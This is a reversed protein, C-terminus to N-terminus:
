PSKRCRLLWGTSEQPCREAVERKWRSLRQYGTLSLGGVFDILGAWPTDYVVPMFEGEVRFGGEKLETELEERSYEIKHDPDSYHFLGAAQLRRKWSTERNPAALFVSGSDSLVRGIERLTTQRQHLHELVDLFLVKDFVGDAFPFCAEASAKLLRLTKVGREAMLRRGIALQREDYDFGVVLRCQGSAQLAHAASGCGVDLVVDEPKLYAMFWHHRADLGVLHKPHIYVSSKGTWKTLRMSASKLKANLYQILQLYAREIVVKM